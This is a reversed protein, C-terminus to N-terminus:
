DREVEALFAGTDADLELLRMVMKSPFCEAISRPDANVDKAKAIIVRFRGSCHDRAWALNEM